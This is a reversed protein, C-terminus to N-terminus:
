AGPTDVLTMTGHTSELEVEVMTTGAVPFDPDEVKLQNRDANSLTKNLNKYTGM